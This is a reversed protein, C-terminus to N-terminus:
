VKGRLPGKKNLKQAIIVAQKEFYKKEDANLNWKCDAQLVLILNRDIRKQGANIEIFTKIEDSQDIDEVAIVPISHTEQQREDLKAFSM